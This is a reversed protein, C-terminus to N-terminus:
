QSSMNLSANCFTLKISGIVILLNKDSNSICKRSLNFQFRFSSKPFASFSMLTILMSITLFLLFVIHEYLRPSPPFLSVLLSHSLPVILSHSRTIHLTFRSFPKPFTFRSTYFTFRSFSVPGSINFLNHFFRHDRADRALITRIQGLQQEFLPVLDVADDAPATREIWDASSANM